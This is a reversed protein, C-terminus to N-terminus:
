SESDFRYTTLEITCTKDDPSFNISDVDAIRLKNEILSLLDKLGNYNINELELEVEIAVVGQPLIDETVIATKSAKKKKSTKPNKNDIDTATIDALFYKKHALLDQFTMLLDVQYISSYKSWPGIMDDIKDKDSDKISAYASKYKIISQKYNELQKREDKLQSKTDDITKVATSLRPYWVFLFSGIFVVLVFVLIILGFYDNLYDSAALVGKATKKDKIKKHTKTIM